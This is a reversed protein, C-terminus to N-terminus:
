RRSGRSARRRGAEQRAEYEALILALPATGTDGLEPCAKSYAEVLAQQGRRWRQRLDAQCLGVVLAARVEDGPPPLDRLQAALRKDNWFGEFEALRAAVLLKQTDSL